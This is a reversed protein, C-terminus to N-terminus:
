RRGILAGRFFGSRRKATSPAVITFPQAYLRNSSRYGLSLHSTASIAVSHPHQVGEGSWFSTWADWLGAAFIRRYVTGGSTRGVAIVRGAGDAHASLHPTIENTLVLAQTWSSGNWYGYGFRSFATLDEHIAVISGSPGPAAALSGAVLANFNFALAAAGYAPPTADTAFRHNVVVTSTGNWAGWIQHVQGSVAVQVMSQEAIAVAPTSAPLGPANGQRHVTCRWHYNAGNAELYAVHCRGTSTVLVNHRLPYNEAAAESDEATYAPSAYNWTTGTWSLKRVRTLTAQEVYSGNVRYCSVAFWLHNSADLGASLGFEPYSIWSGSGFSDDEPMLETVSGAGDDLDTWSAGNDRSLMAVVANGYGSSPSHAFVAVLVGTSTRLLRHASAFPGSSTLCQSTM